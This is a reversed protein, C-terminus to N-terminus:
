QRLCKETSRFDMYHTDLVVLCICSSESRYLPVYSQRNVYEVKKLVLSLGSILHVCLRCYVSNNTCALLLPSHCKIRYQM